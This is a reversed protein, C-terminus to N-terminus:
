KKSCLNLQIYQGQIKDTQGQSLFFKCPFVLGAKLNFGIFCIVDLKCFSHFNIMIPKHQINQSAFPHQMGCKSTLINCAKENKAAKGKNQLNKWWLLVFLTTPPPLSFFYCVSFLSSCFLPFHFFACLYTNLDKYTTRLM